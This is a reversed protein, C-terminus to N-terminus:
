SKSDDEGEEFIYMSTECGDMQVHEFNEEPLYCNEQETIQENYPEALVIKNPIPQRPVRQRQNDDNEFM